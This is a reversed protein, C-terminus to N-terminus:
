EKAHRNKLLFAFKNHIELCERLFRVNIAVGWKLENRTKKSFYTSSAIPNQGLFVSQSLHPWDM